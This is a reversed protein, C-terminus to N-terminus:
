HASHETSLPKHLRRVLITGDFGHMRSQLDFVFVKMVANTGAELAAMSGDEKRFVIAAHLPGATGRWRYVQHTLASHDDFLLLDGPRARYREARVRIAPDSLNQAAFLYSPRELAEAPPSILTLIAFLSTFM